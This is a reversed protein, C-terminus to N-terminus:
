WLPHGDGSGGAPDPGYLYRHERGGAGGGRQRRQGLAYHHLNCDGAAKGLLVAARRSVYAHSSGHFGYRRVRHERYLNEPLAYRYAAPPMTQHFATDFVAVQPVGPFLRIAVEIGELNAPNHLPALPIMDRIVAIVEDDVRTPRQFAEGGHVVRHGIAVLEGLDTLVGSARLRAVILGLGEGHHAIRLALDFGQEQGAEDVWRGQFDGRPEGIRNVAGAALVQWGASQFLQYKISSSGSNLVLVKMPCGPNCPIPLAAGEGRPVM